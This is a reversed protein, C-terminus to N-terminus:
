TISKVTPWLKPSGCRDSLKWDAGRLQPDIQLARTKAENLIVSDLVSQNKIPQAM